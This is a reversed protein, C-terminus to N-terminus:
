RWVYRGSIFYWTHDGERKIIARPCGQGPVGVFEIAAPDFEGEDLILEEIAIKELPTQVGDVIKYAKLICQTYPDETIKFQKNNDTTTITQETSVAMAAYNPDDPVGIECIELNNNIKLGGTATGKKGTNSIFTWVGETSQPTFKVVYYQLIGRGFYITPDGVGPDYVFVSAPEYGGEGVLIDNPSTVPINFNIHNLGKTDGKPSQVQYAWEYCPQDGIICDDIPEVSLLKIIWGNDTHCLIPVEEDAAQAMNTGTFLIFIGVFMILLIQGCQLKKMKGEKQNKQNIYRKDIVSRCIM